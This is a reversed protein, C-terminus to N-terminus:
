CNSTRARIGPARRLTRRLFEAALDGHAHRRRRHADVLMVGFILPIIVMLPFLM